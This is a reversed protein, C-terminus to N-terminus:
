LGISILSFNDIAEMECRNRIENLSLTINNNKSFIFSITNGDIIDHVGDSCIVITDGISLQDITSVEVENNLLDGQISKTVVHKIKEISIASIKESKGKLSNALTHAKSEFVLNNGKLVFIKVDGVWFAIQCDKNILVGGITAGMKEEYFYSEQKIALNAKKIANRIGETNYEKSYELYTKINDVIISAAKGGYSYGGMGDAILFLTAEDNLKEILIVDDNSKRKGINTFSYIEM